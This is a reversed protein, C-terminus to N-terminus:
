YKLRGTVPRSLPARCGRRTKAAAIGRSTPV